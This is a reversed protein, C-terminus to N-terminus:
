PTRRQDEEKGLKWARARELRDARPMREIAAWLLRKVIYDHDKEGMGFAVMVAINGGIEHKFHCKIINKDAAYDYYSEVLSVRERTRYEIEAQVRSAIDFSAAM